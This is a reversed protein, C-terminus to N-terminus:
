VAEGATQGFLENLARRVDGYAFLAVTTERGTERDTIVMSPSDSHPEACFREPLPHQEAAGLISRRTQQVEQRLAENM